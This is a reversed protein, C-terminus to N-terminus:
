LELWKLMSPSYHGVIQKKLFYKFGGGGEQGVSVSTTNRGAYSDVKVVVAPTILDTAVSIENKERLSVPEKRIM